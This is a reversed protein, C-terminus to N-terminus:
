NMAVKRQFWKSFLALIGHAPQNAPQIGTTDSADRAAGESNQQSDLICIEGREPKSVTAGSKILTDIGTKSPETLVVEKETNFIFPIQNRICFLIARANGKPHSVTYKM